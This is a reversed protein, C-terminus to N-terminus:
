AARRRVLWVTAALLLLSLALLWGAEIWQFTWFRSDPQYIALLVFGHQRLYHYPNVAPPHTSETAEFSFPYVAKLHLPRLAQSVTSLSVPNGRRAWEWGLTLGHAPVFGSPSDPDAPTSLPAQYRQRLFAAALIALGAWAAVTALM